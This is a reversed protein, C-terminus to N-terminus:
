GDGKKLRCDPLPDTDSNEDREGVTGTVDATTPDLVRLTFSSRLGSHHSSSRLVLGGLLLDVVAVDVSHLLQCLLLFLGIGANV